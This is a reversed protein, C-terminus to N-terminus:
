KSRPVSNEYGKPVAKQYGVDEEDLQQRSLIIELGTAKKGTKPDELTVLRNISHVLGLRERVITSITIAKHVNLGFARVIVTANNKVQGM